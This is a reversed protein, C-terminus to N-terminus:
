ISFESSTNQPGAKMEGLGTNVASTLEGAVAKMDANKTGTLPTTCGAFAQSAALFLLLIVDSPSARM